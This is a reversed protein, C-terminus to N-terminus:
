RRRGAAAARRARTRRRPPATPARDPAVRLWWDESESAVAVGCPQARRAALRRGRVSGRRAAAAAGHDAARATSGREPWRRWGLRVAMPQERESWVSAALAVMQRRAPWALGAIRVWGLPDGGPVPRWLASGDPLRAATAFDELEGISEPGVVWWATLGDMARFLERAAEPRGAEVALEARVQRVEDAMLPDLPRAAALRDVLGELLQRDALTDRWGFALVLHHFDEPDLGGQVAREVHDKVQQDISTRAAAAGAGFRASRGRGRV